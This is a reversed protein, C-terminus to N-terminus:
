STSKVGKARRQSAHWVLTKLRATEADLVARGLPTIRYYQRREHARSTHAVLGINLLRALATYLTGTGMKMEQETRVAVDLIIGYGHLDSSRLSLLIHFQQASLPLFDRPDKGPAVM